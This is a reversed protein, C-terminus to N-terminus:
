MWTARGSALCTRGSSTHRLRKECRSPPSFGFARDEASLLPTMERFPDWGTLRRMIGFPSLAEIPAPRGNDEQKNVSINSM